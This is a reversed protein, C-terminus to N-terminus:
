CSIKTSVSRLRSSSKQCSGSKLLARLSIILTPRKWILDLSTETRFLWSGGKKTGGSESTANVNTFKKKRAM